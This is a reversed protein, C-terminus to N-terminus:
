RPRRNRRRLRRATTLPHASTTLSPPSATSKQNEVTHLHPHMTPATSQLHKRSSQRAEQLFHRPHLSSATSQSRSTRVQSASPCDCSKTFRTRASRSRGAAPVVKCASLRELYIRGLPNSVDHSRLYCQLLLLTLWLCKHVSCLSIVLLAASSMDFNCFCAASWRKSFRRCQALSPLACTRV